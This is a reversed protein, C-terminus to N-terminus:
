LDLAELVAVPVYNAGHPIGRQEAYRSVASITQSGLVGDIPGVTYGEDRLAEQLAVVNDRTANIDCLVQQWQLEADSVKETKSVQRYEAPIKSRRESAPEVLQRVAVTDYEAPIIVERTTAPSKVIRKEVTRYEAPIEVEQTHAPVDVVSRTITKYTAPVEVLCMVEGTANVNQSLVPDAFTSAAGRKWVTYAPKDLVEETVTRFTAPVEVIKQSAPKVLVQESVIEYEAPITEIRTSEEKVLIREQVDEFQAPVIEVAESEERVLVREEWTRYKAETLVRAYCQGPQAQPPFLATDTADSDSQTALQSQLASIRAERAQLENELSALRADDAATSTELSSAPEMYGVNETQDAGATACGGLVVASALASIIGIEKWCNM